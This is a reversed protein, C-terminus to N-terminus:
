KHGNDGDDITATMMRMATKTMATATTMMMMMAHTTNGVDEGASEVWPHVRTM